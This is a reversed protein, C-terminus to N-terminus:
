ILVAEPAWDPGRFEQNLQKPTVGFTNMDDPVTSRWLTFDTVDRAAMATRFEGAMYRRLALALYPRCLYGKNFGTLILTFRGPYRDLYRYVALTIQPYADSMFDDVSVIGNQHLLQDAIELDNSVAMGSHEGDIHIWRHSKSWKSLFGPANLFDSRSRVVEAEGAGVDQLMKEADQDLGPDVFLCTEGKQAHLASLAASKGHYVGIELMNGKIGKEAQFSLLCDWIAQSEPNFWGEIKAYTKKYEALKSMTVAKLLSVCCVLDIKSVSVIM